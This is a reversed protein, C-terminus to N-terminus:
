LAELARSLATVIFDAQTLTLSLPPTIRVVNSTSSVIVGQSLISLYFCKIQKASLPVWETGREILEVGIALGLGRVDKVNPHHGIAQSIKEMLHKGVDAANDVLDQERLITLAALGAACALQNGGFTSGNHTLSAIPGANMIAAPGGVIGIPFGGALGKGMIILDPVVGSHEYCWMKGTRGAGVLIEDFVLLAGTSNCFERVQHLFQGSMPFMGGAGQMPEIFVAAPPGSLCQRAIFDLGDISKPAQFIGPLLPGMGERPAGSTLSLAGFTRGHYGDQFSIIEHRSTASRVIRLAAEVAEAGSNSIHFVEFRPDLTARLATLFEVRIEAAFDYFHTLKEVQSILQQKFLPQGHGINMVVTGSCADLLFNGDADRVICGRGDVISLESWVSAASGGAARIAVEKAHIAKSAPGPVESVLRPLEPVEIPFPDLSM